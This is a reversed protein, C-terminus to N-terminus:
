ITRFDAKEPTFILKAVILLVKIKINNVVM